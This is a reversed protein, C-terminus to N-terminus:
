IELAKLKALTTRAADLEKGRAKEERVAERVAV